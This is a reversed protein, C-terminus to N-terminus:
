RSHEYYDAGELAADTSLPRRGVAQSMDPKRVTFDAKVASVRTNTRSIHSMATPSDGYDKDWHVGWQTPKLVNQDRLLGSM